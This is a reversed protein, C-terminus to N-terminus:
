MLVHHLTKKNLRKKQNVNASMNQAPNEAAARKPSWVTAIWWCLLLKWWIWGLGSKLGGEDAGQGREREWSTLLSGMELKGKQRVLQQVLPSSALSNKRKRLKVLSLRNGIEGKTPCSLLYWNNSLFLLHSSIPPDHQGVNWSPGNEESKQGLSPFATILWNMNTSKMLDQGVIKCALPYLIFIPNWRWKWWSRMTCEQLVSTQVCWPLSLSLNRLFYKYTLVYYGHKQRLIDKKLFIQYLRINYNINYGQVRTIVKLWM